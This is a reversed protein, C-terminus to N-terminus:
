AVFLVAAAAPRLQHDESARGDLERLGGANIAHDWSRRMRPQIIIYFFIMMEPVKLINYELVPHSVYIAASTFYHGKLIIQAMM